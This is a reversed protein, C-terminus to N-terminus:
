PQWLNINKRQIELKGRINAFIRPEENCYPYLSQSATSLFPSFQYSITCQYNHRRIIKKQLQKEEPERVACTDPTLRTLLATFSLNGSSLAEGEGASKLYSPSAAGRPM